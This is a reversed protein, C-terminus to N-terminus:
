GATSAFIAATAGDDSDGAQLLLLYWGLPVLLALDPLAAAASEIEVLGEVGAPGKRRELRALPTGDATRWIWRSRPLNDASWRFRDGAPLTLTGGGTWGPDFTADAASGQPRVTVRRRWFGARDLTWRTGAARVVALSGTRQSLAAVTDAGTRLEYDREQRNPQVWVLPQDAVDSIPLM